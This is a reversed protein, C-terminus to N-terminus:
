DRLGHGGATMSKNNPHVDQRKWSAINLFLAAIVQGWMHGVWTFPGLAISVVSTTNCQGAACDQWSLFFLTIYIGAALFITGLRALRPSVFYVCFTPLSLAPLIWFFLFLLPHHTKSGGWLGAFAGFLSVAASAIGAVILFAVSRIKPPLIM